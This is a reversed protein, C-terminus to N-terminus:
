LFVLIRNDILILFQGLLHHNFIFFFILWYRENVAKGLLPSKFILLPVDFMGFFIWGNGICGRIIILFWSSPFCIIGALGYWKSLVGHRAIITRPWDLVLTFCVLLFNLSKQFVLITFNMPNLLFFPIIVWRHEHSILIGISMIFSWLLLNQIPKSSINHPLRNLGLWTIVYIKLVCALHETRKISSWFHYFVWRILWNFFYANWSINFTTKILSILALSLTWFTNANPLWSLRFVQRFTIPCLCNEPLAQTVLNLLKFLFFHWSSM